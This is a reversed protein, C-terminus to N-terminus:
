ARARLGGFREGPALRGRSVFRGEGSALLTGAADTVSAEIGLVGRREWLVRGRAVINAGVPVPGRFRMTLEGTVGRVGRAAAAYAMAEDLVLAVAGGHVIGRWGQFSRDFAFAAEVSDDALASFRLHLGHEAHEGCAICFGDDVPPDLEGSM